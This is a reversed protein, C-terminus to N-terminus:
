LVYVCMYVFLGIADAPSHSVHFIQFSPLMTQFVAPGVPMSPPSAGLEFHRLWNLVNNKEM